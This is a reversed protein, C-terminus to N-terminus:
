KKAKKAEIEKLIERSRKQAALIWETDLSKAVDERLGAARSDGNSAAVNFWAYAENLDGSLDPNADGSVGLGEQFRVGMLRQYDVDGSLAVELYYKSATVRDVDVVNGDDYMSGLSKKAEMYGGESSKKLWKLAEEVDKIVGNGDLYLLALAHASQYGGESADKEYLWSAEKYDKEVGVGNAYAWGLPGSARVNGQELSHRLLRVGEKYDISAGHTGFLLSQGYGFEGQPDGQAASKRFWELALEDQRPRGYDGTCFFGMYAQARPDNFDKAPGALMEYARELDEDTGTGHFYCRGVYVKARINGSKAARVAWEFHLADNISFGGTGNGYHESVRLQAAVNGSEAEGLLSSMSYGSFDKETNTATRESSFVGFVYIGVVILIALGIAPYISHARNRISEKSPTVEQM